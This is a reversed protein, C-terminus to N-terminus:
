RKREKDLKFAKAEEDAPSGTNNIMLYIDFQDYYERILIYILKTRLESHAAFVYRAYDHSDKSESEPFYFLEGICIGSGQNVYYPHIANILYDIKKDSVNSVTVDVELFVYKQQIKKMNLSGDSNYEDQIFYDTGMKLVNSDLTDLFRYDHFQYKLEDSKEKGELQELTSNIGGVMYEKELFANVDETGDDKKETQVVGDPIKTEVKETQYEMFIKEIKDRNRYTYIGILVMALCVFSLKVFVKKM